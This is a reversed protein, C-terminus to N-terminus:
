PAEGSLPSPPLNRVPMEPRGAEIPATELAAGPGKRVLRAMYLVGTPYILLYAAVYFLLSLLVDHRALSPTVSDATRLLGYVTWPQRGVETTCWGALVAFFGIPIALQCLRLYWVKDFLSRRYRLWLGTAVL